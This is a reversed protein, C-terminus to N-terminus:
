RHAGPTHPDPVHRLVKVDDPPTTDSIYGIAGPVQQVFALMSKESEQVVPPEKGIFHMRDWYIALANVDQRLVAQTFHARLSSTAERNVPVIHGGNPWATTRLLYIASIQDDTLPAPADVSPNAIILLGEARVGTAMVLTLALASIIRIARRQIM